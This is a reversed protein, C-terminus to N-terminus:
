GYADFLPLSTSNKSKSPNHLVDESSSTKLMELADIMFKDIIPFSPDQYIEILQYLCGARQPASARKAIITRIKPSAEEVTEFTTMRYRGQTGIRGYTSKLIWFGFLDQTLEISYFRALNRSTERAELHIRLM